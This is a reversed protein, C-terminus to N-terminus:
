RRSDPRVGTRRARRRGVASSWVASSRPMSGLGRHAEVLPDQALAAPRLPDCPGGGSVGGVGEILAGRDPRTRRRGNALRTRGRTGRSAAAV